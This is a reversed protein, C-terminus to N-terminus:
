RPAPGAQSRLLDHDDLVLAVPPPGHVLLGSDGEDLPDWGADVPAPQAAARALLLALADGIEGYRLRQAGGVLDILAALAPLPDTRTTLLACQPVLAEVADALPLDRLSPTAGPRRDLLILGGLALPRGTLPALGLEDPGSEAKRSPDVVRSLPKPFALVTGEPTVAVLEDTVYGLGARCLATVATTKGVGSAAVLALVRGDPTAAGAAHLLLHGPDLAAMAGATVEHTLRLWWEEPVPGVARPM